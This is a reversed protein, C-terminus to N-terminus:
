QGTDIAPRSSRAPAEMARARPRVVLIIQYALLAKWLQTAAMLLYELPRLILDPLYQGVILRIPVASGKVRIIEFGANELEERISSMTYFRLHTEDLIGRERYQFIGFLLGIRITVNAINPVSVFAVGDSGLSSLVLALVKKPNKLHELVDALVITGVHMPLRDTQELDAIVVHDFRPRLDAIRDRSYEYGIRLDFADRLEAGLEGGAAGLDLLTGRNSYRHILDILIRHSSGHFNKFTYVNPM